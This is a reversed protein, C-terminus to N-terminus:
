AKSEWQHKHSCSMKDEIATIKVNRSNIRKNRCMGISKETSIRENGISNAFMKLFKMVTM